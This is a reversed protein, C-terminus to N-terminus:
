SHEGVAAVWQQGKIEKLELRAGNVTLFRHIDWVTCLSINLLKHHM